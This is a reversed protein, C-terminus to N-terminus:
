IFHLSSLGCFTLSNPLVLFGGHAANQREACQLLVERGGEKDRIYEKLRGDREKQFTIFFSLLFLSKLSMESESSDVTNLTLMNM